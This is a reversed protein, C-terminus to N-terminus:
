EGKLETKTEMLEHPFYWARSNVGDLRSGERDTTSCHTNISSKYKLCSGESPFFAGIFSDGLVSFLFHETSGRHFFFSFYHGCLRYHESLLITCLTAGGLRRCGFLWWGIAVATEARLWDLCSCLMLKVKETFRWWRSKPLSKPPISPPTFSSVGSPHVCRHSDMKTEMTNKFM